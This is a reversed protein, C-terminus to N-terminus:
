HRQPVSARRRKGGRPQARGNTAALVGAREAITQDHISIQDEFATRCDLQVEPDDERLWQQLLQWLAAHRDCMLALLVRDPDRGETDLQRLTSQWQELSGLLQRAREHSGADSLCEHVDLLRKEARKAPEDADGCTLRGDPGCLPEDEYRHFAVALPAFGYALAWEHM